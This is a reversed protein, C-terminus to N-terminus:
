NPDLRTSQKLNRKHFSILFFLSFKQKAGKQLLASRIAIGFDDRSASM